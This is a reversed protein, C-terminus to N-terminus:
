INIYSTLDKFFDLFENEILNYDKKMVGIAYKSKDPLSTNRAMGDLVRKIGQETAYAMIWNHQVMYPTVKKLRDPLISENLTIYAYAKQAFDSLPVDTYKHWNNALFHDYLIDVVVGAYLGYGSRFKDRTQKHLLHKDTFTDINRHLIIGKQVEDPYNLYQKGKVFDGIYNGLMVENIGKSLYLHALINM